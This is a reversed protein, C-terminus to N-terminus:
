FDSELLYKEILKDTILKLAGLISVYKNEDTVEIYQDFPLVKKSYDFSKDTKHIHSYASIYCNDYFKIYYIKDENSYAKLILEEISTVEIDNDPTIEELSDGTLFISRCYKHHERKRITEIAYSLSNSPGLYAFKKPFKIQEGPTGNASISIIAYINPRKEIYLCHQKDSIKYNYIPHGYGTTLHEKEVIGIHILTKIIRSVSSHNLKLIKSLSLITSNGNKIARYANLLHYNKISDRKM